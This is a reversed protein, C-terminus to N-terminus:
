IYPPCWSSASSNRPNKKSVRSSSSNDMEWDKDGLSGALAGSSGCSGSPSHISTPLFFLNTM